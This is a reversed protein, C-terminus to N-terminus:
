VVVEVALRHSPAVTLGTKVVFVMQFLVAVLNEQTLSAALTDMLVAVQEVAFRQIPAVTIGVVVLTLFLVVVMTEVTLSAALQKRTVVPIGTKVVFQRLFLVAVMIEMSVRAVHTVMMVYLKTMQALLAKFLRLPM